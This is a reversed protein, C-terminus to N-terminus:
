KLAGPCTSIAGARGSAFTRHWDPIGWGDTVVLMVKRGPPDAYSRLTATAALVSRQIERERRSLNLTSM